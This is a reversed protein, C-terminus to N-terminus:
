KADPPYWSASERTIIRRSVLVRRADRIAVFILVPLFPVILMGLVWIRVDDM